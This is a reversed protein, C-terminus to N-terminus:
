PFKNTPGKKKSCVLLGSGAAFSSRAGGVKWVEVKLLHGMMGACLTLFYPRFFFGLFPKILCLLSNGSLTCFLLGGLSPFAATVESGAQILGHTFDLHDQEEEM